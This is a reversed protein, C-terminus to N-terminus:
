ARCATVARRCEPWSGAPPPTRLFHLPWRIKGPPASASAACWAVLRCLVFPGAPVRGHLLLRFFWTLVVLLALRRAVFATREPCSCAVRWTAASAGRRRALVACSRM